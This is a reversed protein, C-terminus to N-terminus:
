AMRLKRRGQKTYEPDKHFCFELKLPYRWNGSFM